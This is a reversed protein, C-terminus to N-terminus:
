WPDEEEGLHESDEHRVKKVGKDLFHEYKYGDRGANPIIDEVWIDAERLLKYVALWCSNKAGSMRRNTVYQALISTVRKNLFNNHTITKVISEKGDEHINSLINTM